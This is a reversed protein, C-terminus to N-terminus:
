GGTVEVYEPEWVRESWLLHKVALPLEAVGSGVVVAERNEYWNAVMMKIAVKIKEPVSAATTFTVEVPFRRDDDVEPWTYDEQRWLQQPLTYASFDYYASSLTQLNGNADYYKVNSIADVPRRPLNLYGTPFGTLYMTYTRDIYDARCFTECAERAATILLGIYTDEDAIDIRAHTKAEATTVPESGDVSVIKLVPPM